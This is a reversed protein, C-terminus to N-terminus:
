KLFNDLLETSTINEKSECTGYAFLIDRINTETLKLKKKDAAEYITERYIKFKLVDKLMKKEFEEAEILFRQTKYDDTALEEFSIPITLVTFYKIAMYLCIIYRFQTQQRTLLKGSNESEIKLEYNELSKLYVLYRDFIDISQFIIRHKYWILKERENFALFAQKIAWNRERCNIISIISDPKPIPPFNTRSWEIIDRYSDFFPHKLAETASYRENPDFKLLNNLLDLFKDYSKEDESYKNFETIEEDTLDLIEKWNKKNRRPLVKLKRKKIIKKVNIENFSSNPLLNIIKTLIENDNDEMGILLASKAIMEFFVCGISWIDSICSYNEKHYCIEPARYWCTVVSPSSPEQLCKIKSLGFDCLKISGNDNEVYWLINAPKIDRHIVGKSHTFEVALMIQVMALKLYSVHLKKEYILNHLTKECKEFVFHLYDEKYNTKKSIPSNPTIFPDGFSVSNLKVIFPHGRLRNLLDMERISGSFSIDSHIINRKVAIEEEKSSKAIYVTGYTGKGSTKLKIM